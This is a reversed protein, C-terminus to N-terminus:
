VAVAAKGADQAEGAARLGGKEVLVEGEESALSGVGEM